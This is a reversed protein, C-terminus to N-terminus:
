GTLISRARLRRSIGVARWVGYGVMLAVAVGILILAVHPLAYARGRDALAVRHRASDLVRVEWEYNPDPTATLVPWSTSVGVGFVPGSVTSGGRVWHGVCRSHQNEMRDYTVFCQDVTVRVSDAPVAGLLWGLAVVALLGCALGVAHKRSVAGRRLLQVPEESDAARLVPRTQALSPSIAFFPRHEANASTVPRQAVHHRTFSEFRRLKRSPNVTREWQGSPCGAMPRATTGQAAAPTLIVTHGPQAALPYRRRTSPLGAGGGAAWGFGCLWM